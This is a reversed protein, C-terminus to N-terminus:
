MQISTYIDYVHEWILFSPYYQLLTRLDRFKWLKLILSFYLIDFAGQFRIHITYILPTAHDSHHIQILPSLVICVSLSISVVDMKNGLFSNTPNFLAGLKWVEYKSFVRLYIFMWSFFMARTLFVHPPSERPILKDSLTVLKWFLYWWPKLPVLSFSGDM